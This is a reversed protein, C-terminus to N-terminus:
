GATLNYDGLVSGVLRFATKASSLISSNKTGYEKNKAINNCKSLLVM